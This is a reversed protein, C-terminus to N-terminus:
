MADTMAKIEDICKDAIEAEDADSTAEPAAMIAPAVAAKGSRGAIKGMFFMMSAEVGAKDEGTAEDALATLAAVCRGDARDADSLTPVQLLLALLLAAIM